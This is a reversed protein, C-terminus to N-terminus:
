LADTKAIDQTPSPPRDERGDPHIAFRQPHPGHVPGAEPWPWGGFGTRQYDAFATVLEDRTNMVFPGYNAVPERIPAGQLLLLETPQPGNQIPTAVNPQLRIGHGRPITQGWLTLTDGAFFYLTRNAGPTCPPLTWQANPDLSITQISLDSSPRAAWSNPPPMPASQDDLSGAIIRIHTQRGSADTAHVQPLTEAWMMTFYPPVLKDSAPLNLWIQFLEAPNDAETNLLPFMESHVIGAGATMWQVDGNGFRAKAGLSDSHDIFGQRALTVTEFGRHPHQPFGPVQRGHYMSWGDKGSFDQGIARGALSAKPRFQGDGKPYADHHHVCFLFPDLTKWPPAGLVFLDVIAM